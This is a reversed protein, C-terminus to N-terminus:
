LVLAVEHDITQCRRYQTVLMDRQAETRRDTERSSILLQTCPERKNPKKKAKVKEHGHDCRLSGRGRQFRGTDGQFFQSVTLMTKSDSVMWM